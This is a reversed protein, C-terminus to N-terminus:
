EQQAVLALADELLVVEAQGAGVGAKGAPIGVLAHGGILVLLAVLGPLPAHGVGEAVRRLLGIDTSARGAAGARRPPQNSRRRAGLKGSTNNATVSAASSNRM